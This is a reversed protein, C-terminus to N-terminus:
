DADEEDSTGTANPNPIPVKTSLKLPNYVSSSLFLNEEAGAGKDKKGYTKGFKNKDPNTLPDLLKEGMEKVIKPNNIIKMVNNICMQIVKATKPDLGYPPIGNLMCYLYRYMARPDVGGCEEVSPLDGYEAIILFYDLFANMDSKEAKSKDKSFNEIWEDLNKIKEKDYNLNDNDSSLENKIKKLAIAKWMNIQRKIDQERKHPLYRKLSDVDDIGCELCGALFLRKDRESWKYSNDESSEFEFTNPVTKIRQSGRTPQVQVSPVNRKSKSQSDPQKEATFWVVGESPNSTSPGAISLQQLGSPLSRCENVENSLNLSDDVVEVISDQEEDSLIMLTAESEM